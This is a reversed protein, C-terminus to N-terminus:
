GRPSANSFLRDLSADLSVDLSSSKVASSEVASSKVSSSEVSSSEVSSRMSLFVGPRMSAVM